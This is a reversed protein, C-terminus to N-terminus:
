SKPQFEVLSKRAIETIETRDADSLTETGQLRALMEPLMQETTAAVVKQADIMRDLSVKDFLGACLALLLTIQAVAQMPSLVRTAVITAVSNASDHMGNTFDFGLAVAVSVGTLLSVVITTKSTGVIGLVAVRAVSAKSRWMVPPLSWPVKLAWIRVLLPM